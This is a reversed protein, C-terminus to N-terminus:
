VSSYDWVQNRRIGHVAPPVGTLMTTHSPWTITPVEGVVGGAWSGERILRHLNSIKLGLRDCESLYRHDLGDVSVLVMPVPQQACLTFAFLLFSAVRM